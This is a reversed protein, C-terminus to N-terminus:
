VWRVDDVTCGYLDCLKQLKTFPPDVKGKEWLYITGQTVGMAEAAQRQTMGANTRLSKLTMKM